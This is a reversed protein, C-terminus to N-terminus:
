ISQLGKDEYLLPHGETKESEKVKEREQPSFRSAKTKAEAM